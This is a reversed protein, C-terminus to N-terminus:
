YNTKFVRISRCIYVTAILIMLAASSTFRRGSVRFPPAFLLKTITESIIIDEKEEGTERRAYM